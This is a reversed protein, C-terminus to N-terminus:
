KQLYKATWQHKVELLKKKACILILNGGLQPFFMYESAVIWFCFKREETSCLNLYKSSHQYGFLQRYDISTLPLWWNKTVLM